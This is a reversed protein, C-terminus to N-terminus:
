LIIVYSSVASVNLEKSLLDADSIIQRKPIKCVLSALNYSAQQDITLNNKNTILANSLNKYFYPSAKFYQLADIPNCLYKEKLKSSFNLM